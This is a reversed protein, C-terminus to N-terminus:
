PLGSLAAVARWACVPVVTPLRTRGLTASASGGVASGVASGAAVAGERSAPSTGEGPGVLGDPAVADRAGGGGCVRAPRFLYISMNRLRSLDSMASGAM